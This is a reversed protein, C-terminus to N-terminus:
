GARQPGKGTWPAAPARPQTFLQLPVGRARIEQTVRGVATIKPDLALRDRDVLGLEGAALAVVALVDQTGICLETVLVDDQGIISKSM